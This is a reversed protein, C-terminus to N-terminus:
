IIKCHIFRTQNDIIELTINLTSKPLLSPIKSPWEVLCFSKSDFYEDVGIDLAESEHKIRYFDFHYILQNDVGIYENVISFTPSSVTNKVGLLICIEKIFTTKGAGMQGHLLWIKTDSFKFLLSKAVNKLESITFKSEFDNM